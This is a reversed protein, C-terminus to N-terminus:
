MFILLKRRWFPREEYISRPMPPRPPRPMPPKPRRRNGLLERIVLIRILDKLLCNEHRTEKKDDTVNRNQVSNTEKKDNVSEINIYIENTMNEINEETINMPASSCIKCVMPHVLKYVDPYFSELTENNKLNQIPQMDYFDNGYMNQMYTNDGYPMSYGLVSRMYEEYNQNYM